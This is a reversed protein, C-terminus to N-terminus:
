QEEYPAFSKLRSNSVLNPSQKVIAYGRSANYNEGFLLSKDFLIRAGTTANRTCTDKSM